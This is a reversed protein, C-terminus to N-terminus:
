VLGKMPEATAAPAPAAPTEVLTPKAATGGGRRHSFRGDIQSGQEITLNEYTVDGTIRATALITLDRAHISGEVTGALKATEASVGGKIVSEQGQIVSVCAVDGEVKGDIHLAATASINGTVTVGSGLVSANSQTAPAPAPRPTIPPPANVQVPQPTPENASDHRSKSFM